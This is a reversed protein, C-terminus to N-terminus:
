YNAYKKVEKININCPANGNIDIGLHNFKSSDILNKAFSFLFLSTFFFLFILITTKRM